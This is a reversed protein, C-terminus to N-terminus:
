LLKCIHYKYIKIVYLFICNMCVSIIISEHYLQHEPTLEDSSLRTIKRSLDTSLYLFINKNEPKANMRFDVTLVKKIGVKKM